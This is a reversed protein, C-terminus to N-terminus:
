HVNVKGNIDISSKFYVPVQENDGTQLVASIHFHLRFVDRDNEVHQVDVSRVRPEYQAINLVIAKRIEDITNPLNSMLNNLDPMGLGPDIVVAGRSTNFLRQLHEIVSAVAQASHGQRRSDPKEELLRLRQLLRHEM